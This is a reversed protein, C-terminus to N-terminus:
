ILVAEGSHLLYLYSEKVKQHLIRELANKYLELQIRYNNIISNRNGEHVIDSKYDLLILDNGEQFYLDIVGQVLLEEDAGLSGNLEAFIEGAKCLLNFPVERYVKESKLLRQGLTSNFFNLIKSIDVAAKEEERLLEQKIMYDIQNEIEKESSIRSFDIHRLVFHIISGKESPSIGAIKGNQGEGAFVPGIIPTSIQIAMNDLKATKLKKIQTVSLKSPIRSADLYGYAWNLRNTIEEKAGSSEVNKLNKLNERFNRDDQEKKQDEVLIRAREWIEVKWLSEDPLIKDDNWSLEAFERLKEGCPHRMVVPGVWDLYSKGRSLSFPGMSEAWSKASKELNRVSGLLILKQQARTCAVYLVRMEEALNEIKIKNKMAIRAISDTYTRLELNVYQPGIGLDKHFLVRSRSDSFNFQKGMGGVIVVPFELGKSKHISMIKVVNDNEGLTRAAGMDGSSAQLRNIFDIFNYLGKISTNQFQRARDLLLKLNAQRQIGGPMSAVYYYYGTEMMLKWIFDDMPVFRAEEKWANLRDIFVKLRQALDDCNKLLYEEVAGFYDHAQSQMRIKIMDQIDFGGIPSRMISLFPIDQRKNDILKLLNIFVNVELAAFYGTNIDAYAPIGASMLSELYVGAWNRSTRLLIVIDRYEINRYIGKKADYIEQGLLEKIRRSALRAEVEIDNIELLEDSLEDTLALKKEILRLEVSPDEIKGTEAGPYLFADEDYDFEGFEYSMLHKFIYNVANIIEPRSRFNKRLDIRRNLTTETKKFSSSKELFLSPDALRFRYISQKVDGVMFLNDERKIYNVISEQVLNSDQYEDIFIYTFKKQYERAVEEHALIELAYHELDNFDVLGKEMKKQQYALTFAETLNFLYSMYPYLEHLDELYEAPSRTFIDKLEKIIKKGDERLRKVEEKMIEDTDKAVRGLRKHQVKQLEVYIAEVGLSLAKKLADIIQLDDQIADYYASPGSAQECLKSAENFLSKAGSLQMDIEQGLTMLWPSRSFEEETMNFDEVRDHLWELPRPKSQIFEYIDLLLIQLPTDDKSNGFMELLGLFIESSKEYEEEFLENATEVKMLEMETSDGIKFDPDVNIFYFNRRVVDICFSHITSISARNLLQIQRRLHLKDSNEKELENLIATSIRERMEGAAAHTFTVILLSDLNIKDKTILQIIREVLVATKGSGAAATVLLNCDRAKIANEQDVTWEPVM